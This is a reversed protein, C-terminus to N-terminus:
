LTRMKMAEVEGTETNVKFVKYERQYQPFELVEALPDETEDAIRIFGLTIFWYKRDESLEM